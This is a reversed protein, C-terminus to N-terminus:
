EESKKDDSKKARSRTAAKKAPAKKEEAAPADGEATAKKKASPGTDNRTGTQPSGCSGM